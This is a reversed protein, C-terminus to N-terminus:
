GEAVGLYANIVNSDSLVEAPRGGAITRGYDLVQLRDALDAVMQMDHEIWIMAIGLEHKIRLLFRALDEREDRNLGASPEDLLLLKPETALARAFGALKQIGFPLGGVPAHRFRELEVFEIIREVAERHMVEERRVSPLFMAEALPNTRFRAHRGALLNDIVSMERFLEGHQFTRALGLRAIEHPTKGLISQGSFRITGARPRYIGSICNFVSTKGAGNPGILAFLEGPAVSISIDDLVKLGGFALALNEVQLDAM